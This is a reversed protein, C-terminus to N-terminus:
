ADKFIQTIKFVRCGPHRCAVRSVSAYYGRSWWYDKIPGYRRVGIARDEWDPLHLEPTRHAYGLACMLQLGLYRVAMKGWHWAFIGVLWLLVSCVVTMVVYYCPNRTGGMSWWTMAVVLVAAFGYSM